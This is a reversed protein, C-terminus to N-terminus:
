HRVILLRKMDAYIGLRAIEERLQRLTQGSRLPRAQAEREKIRADIEDPTLYISEPIKHMNRESQSLAPLAVPRETVPLLWSRETIGRDHM